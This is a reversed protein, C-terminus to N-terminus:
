SCVRQPIGSFLGDRKRIGARSKLCLKPTPTSGVGRSTQSRGGPLPLTTQPIGPLQQRGASLQSSWPGSPPFQGGVGRRGFPGKSRSLFRPPWGGVAGKLSM